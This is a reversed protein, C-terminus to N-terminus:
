HDVQPSHVFRWPLWDRDPHISALLRHPYNGYLHFLGGGYNQLFEQPSVKYWDDGKSYELRDFLWEMYERCNEISNWFGRPIYEFLWDKWATHKYISRLSRPLSGKYYRILGSGGKKIISNKDKGYWEEVLNVGSEEAFWDMYKRQNEFSHWFTEPVDEAFIWPKWEWEPYISKLSIGLSGQYLNLLETGGMESIDSSKIEYWDEMRKMELQDMMWDFYQRRNEMRNWYGDPVPNFRWEQWETRNYIKKLADIPSGKYRDLLGGGGRKLFDGRMTRYWDEVKKMNMDEAMWDLFKRQNKSEMWFGGPLDGFRWVQWEIQPYCSCVMRRVSNGFYEFFNNGGLEDIDEKKINYWDEMDKLELKNWLWEVFKMQENPDNWYGEKTEKFRWPQWEMWDYRNRILDM